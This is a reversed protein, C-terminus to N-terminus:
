FIGGEKRPVIKGGEALKDRSRRPSTSQFHIIRILKLLDGAVPGAREAHFILALHAVRPVSEGGEFHGFAQSVRAGCDLLRGAPTAWLRARRGSEFRRVETPAENKRSGAGYTRGARCLM